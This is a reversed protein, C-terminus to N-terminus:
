RSIHHRPFLRQPHNVQVQRFVGDDYLFQVPRVAMRGATAVHDRIWIKLELPNRVALSDEGTQM